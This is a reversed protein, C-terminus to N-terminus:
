IIPISSERLFIRRQLAENTPENSLQPKTPPPHDTGTSKIKIPSFWGKNGFGKWGEGKRLIEHIEQTYTSLFVMNVTVKMSFPVIKSRNLCSRILYTTQKAFLYTFVKYRSGCWLCSRWPCAREFGVKGVEGEKLAVGNHAHPFFSHLFRDYCSSLVITHWSIFWIVGWWGHGYTM